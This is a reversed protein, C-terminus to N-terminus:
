FNFNNDSINKKPSNRWHLPKSGLFEQISKSDILSIKLRRALVKYKSSYITNLMAKKKTIGLEFSIDNIYEAVSYLIADGADTWHLISSSNQNISSNFKQTDWYVKALSITMSSCEILDQLANIPENKNVLTKLIDIKM